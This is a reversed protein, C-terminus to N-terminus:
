DLILMFTNNLLANEDIIHEPQNSCEQSAKIGHPINIRSSFAGSCSAFCASLSNLFGHNQQLPFNYHLLTDRAHATYPAPNGSTDVRLFGRNSYEIRTGNRRVETVSAINEPPIRDIADWEDAQRAMALSM